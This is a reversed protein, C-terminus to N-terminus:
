QPKAGDDERLWDSFLDSASRTTAIESKLFTEIELAISVCSSLQAMDPVLTGLNRMIRSQFTAWAEARGGRERLDAFKNGIEDLILSGFQTARRKRSTGRPQSEETAGAETEGSCDQESAEAESASERTRPDTASEKTPVSWKDSALRYRSVTGTAPEPIGIFSHFDRAQDNGKPKRGM